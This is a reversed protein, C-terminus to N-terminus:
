AAVDEDGTVRLGAKVLLDALKAYMERRHRMCTPIVAHLPEIVGRIWGHRTRRIETGVEFMNAYGSASVLRARVRYPETEVDVRVKSILDNMTGPEGKHPYTAYIQKAEAAAANAAEVVITNAEAILDDPLRKLEAKFEDMGTFTFKVSNM